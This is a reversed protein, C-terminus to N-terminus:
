GRRIVESLALPSEAAGVCPDRPVSTLPARDIAREVAKRPVTRIGLLADVWALAPIQGCIAKIVITIPTGLVLGPLGWIWSWFLLSVFMAVTNMQASRGSLWTQLVVGIVSSLALTISAVVLGQALSDFQVSAFVASGLAIVAPGFYPVFHLIASGFGWAAAYHVGLIWFAGWVSLGLLTNTIVLWGLYQHVSHQIQTLTTRMGIRTGERIFALRTILSELRGGAALMLYILFVIAGIEGTLALFQLTDEQLTAQVASATTPPEASSAPTAGGTHPLDILVKFHHAVSGPDNLAVDVEHRLHRVAQPMDDLVQILQGGTRHALTWMALCLAVLVLAAGVANPIRFRRLWKVTPSLCITLFVAFCLPILFQRAWSLFWISAIATMVILATGGVPHPQARTASATVKDQARRGSQIAM